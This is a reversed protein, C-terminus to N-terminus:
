LVNWYFISLKEANLSDSMNYKAQRNSNRNSIVSVINQLMLKLFDITKSDFISLLVM